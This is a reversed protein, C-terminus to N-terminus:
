GAVRNESLLLRKKYKVHFEEIWRNTVRKEGKALLVEAEGTVAGDAMLGAM